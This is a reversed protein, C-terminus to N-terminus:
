CFKYTLSRRNRTEPVCPLNSFFLAPIRVFDDLSFRPLWEPPMPGLICQLDLHIAISRSCNLLGIFVSLAHNGVTGVYGKLTQNFDAKMRNLLAQQKSGLKMQTFSDQRRCARTIRSSMRASKTGSEQCFTRFTMSSTVKVANLKVINLKTSCTPVFLFIGAAKM